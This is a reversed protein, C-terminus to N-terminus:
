FLGWLFGTANNRFVCIAKTASLMAAAINRSDVANLIEATNGDYINELNQGNAHWVGAATSTDSCNFAVVQGPQVYCIFTGGNKHFAFRYLGANKIVLVPAGKNLTTASAATVKKGTATMSIIQLRGSASTLTIDVASSTTDSGGAGTKTRLAWNTPDLAPDITRLGANKCRYDFYDTPSWAVAGEAYTGSVWKANAIGASAAETDLAFQEVESAQVNLLKIRPNFESVFTLSSSELEDSTMNYPDPVPETFPPVTTVM